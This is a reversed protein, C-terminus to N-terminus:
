TFQHQVAYSMNAGIDAFVFGFKRFFQKRIGRDTLFFTDFGMLLQYFLVTAAYGLEVAQEL